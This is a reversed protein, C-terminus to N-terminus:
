VNGGVCFNASGSSFVVRGEGVVMLECAIDDQFEMREELGRVFGVQDEEETEISQFTRVEEEQLKYSKTAFTRLM